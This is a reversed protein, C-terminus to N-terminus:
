LRFSPYISNITKPEYGNYQKLFAKLTDNETQKWCEKISLKTFAILQCVLDIERQSHKAGKRRKKVVQDQTDFFSLFMKAFFTIFPSDKTPKFTQAKAKYKMIPMTSLSEKEALTDTASAIYHITTPSDIIIEQEGEICLKLTISKIFTTGTNENFDKVNNIISTTFKQLQEYPSEKREAGNIYYHYSYDYIFLILMWFKEVDLELEAIFKQILASELYDDYNFYESILNNNYRDSFIQLTESIAPILPQNGIEKCEKPSKEEETVISINYYCFPDENAFDFDPIFINELISIYELLEKEKNINNWQFKDIPQM